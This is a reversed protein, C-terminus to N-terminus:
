DRLTTRAVPAFSVRRVERVGGGDVAGEVLEYGLLALMRGRLFIPRANGYWDVCSAKCGDAVPEEASSALAGLRTFRRGENRLFVISASGEVLHEWGPRGPGRVPLGLIGAAAGAGDARYFFGHSRTEGQSASELVFRQAVVPRAGLRVGSFHLDGGSAGVVVADPGMVEIRDVPHSLGLSTIDGGRWPVVFITGREDAANDWWGNGSGYLLHDGAFRNHFAGSAPMPLARYWEEPARARGDDFQALPARLLMLSDAGPPRRREATWM